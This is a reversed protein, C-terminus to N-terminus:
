KEFPDNPIKKKIKARHYKKNNNKTCQPYEDETLHVAPLSKWETPKGVV